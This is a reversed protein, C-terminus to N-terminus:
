AMLRELEKLEEDLDPSVSIKSTSIQVKELQQSGAEAEMSELEELLADEDGLVQKGVEIFFSSREESDANLEEIKERM